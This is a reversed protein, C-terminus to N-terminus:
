GPDRPETAATQYHFWDKLGIQLVFLISVPGLAVRVISHPLHM